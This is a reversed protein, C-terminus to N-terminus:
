PESLKEPYMWGGKWGHRYTSQGQHEVMGGEIWEGCYRCGKSAIHNGVVEVKECSDCVLRRSGPPVTVNSTEM